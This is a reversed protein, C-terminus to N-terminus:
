KEFEYALARLRASADSLVESSMVRFFKDLTLAHDFNELPIRQERGEAFKLVMWGSPGDVLGEWWWKASM